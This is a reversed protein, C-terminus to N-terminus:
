NEKNANPHVELGPCSGAPDGERLFCWHLITTEGTVYASGPGKVGEEGEKQILLPAGEKLVGWYDTLFTWPVTKNIFKIEANKEELDRPWLTTATSWSPLTISVFANSVKPSLEDPLFIAFKMVESGSWVTTNIAVCSEASTRRLQHESSGPRWQVESDLSGHTM